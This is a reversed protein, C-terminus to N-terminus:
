SHRAAAFAQGSAALKVFDEVVVSWDRPKHNLYITEVMAALHHRNQDCEYLRALMAEPDKAPSLWGNKGDQITDPGSCNPTTLIALASAQAQALVVPFGDELTPFIFLDAWAYQDVLKSEPQKAIFDAFQSLERAVRVSKTEVPGVIRFQFKGSTSATRAIKLLDASGKRASLTGVYLVRLPDGALIRRQREAVVEPSPRFHSLEAGLLLLRLRHEPYNCELFSQRAFKSLVVVADALEYERKERRIMWTSPVEVDTGSRTREDQLIQNQVDIHASCRALLLQKGSHKLAIFSEESVGSFSLVVDADSKRLRSAAWKGFARHLAAEPVPLELNRLREFLRSALGHPWFSEVCTTPIGFRRVAWKPYNTLLTVNADRAILARVLDFAFFRGHVVVAYKM